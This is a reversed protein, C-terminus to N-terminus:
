RRSLAEFERATTEYRQAAAQNNRMQEAAAQALYAYYLHVPINQTAPDTWHPRSVMDTLFVNSLLRASRDVDMYAGLMPNFQEGQPMKLMGSVEGPTVLKFALGQRAVHPFFGLDYQINTTSAFYIPRDGWAHKIISLVFQDSPQLYKDRPIGVQVGRAEFVADQPVVLGRSFAVANIETDSLGFISRTPLRAGDYFPTKADRQYPRQCIIVSPDTLAQNPGETCPRTLDRLQRPYWDTNLYSLVIVTVDRRIGEVEQVYWLPFTDNDGNTFLVGYPEVSQLVNYAWDRATTDGRRSAYPWNLVMPVLALIFVPSAMVLANRREGFAEALSTWLATLGIGVWLGWMSFSVLFFYDRERVEALEPSQGYARIQGFGYKFNMYMTLGISLTLFLVGLYAFSKRDRRWHELMGFGGLAAFVLTVFFRPFGFYSVTGAVSRGWQWDFYQFYNLVQSVFPAQRILVSPKGYQERLLSASLNECGAKGYTVIATLAEGVSACTPSAENIIPHLGARISLFLHVSLGLIFFGVGIAHMRWNRPSVLLLALVMAPAGIIMSLGAIVVLGAYFEWQGFAQPRVMLLLVALAPVALLAMMHNAVSLALIFVMLVVINDDNWRGRVGQHEETHDRWLFALWSLAAITFMSVTYVKENVNSQNWVTYATASVLVGAAAGALRVGQRTDFFGLVRHVTLFWFFATGASMFASFLNIRVATPLGTPALLLEWARALLVFLPNGPPHPIGVIHATAIYESTDWFWTTPGLTIAYLAFVAAAALLAWRYPPREHVAVDAATARAEPAHAAARPRETRAAQAM